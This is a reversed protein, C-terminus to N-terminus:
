FTLIKYECSSPEFSVAGSFLLNTSDANKQSWSINKKKVAFYVFISPFQHKAGNASLKVVLVSHPSYAGFLFFWMKLHLLTKFLLCIVLFLLFFINQFYFISYCRIIMRAYHRELVCDLVWHQRWKCILYKFACEAIDGIANKNKDPCSCLTRNVGSPYELYSTWCAWLPARLESNLSRSSPFSQPDPELGSIQVPDIFKSYTWHSM